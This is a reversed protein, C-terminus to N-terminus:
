KKIFVRLFDRNKRKKKKKKKIKFHKLFLFLFDRFYYLHHKDLTEM